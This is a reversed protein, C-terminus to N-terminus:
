RLALCFCMWRFARSPERRDTTMVKPILGKLAFLPAALIERVTKRPNLSSLPDQFVMQIRRYLARRNRRAMVPIPENDITLTGATPEILGVMMRALTSKGCGSEGVVGLTRGRAVALSVGGVARFAAPRPKLWHPRARKFERVLGEARLVIDSM